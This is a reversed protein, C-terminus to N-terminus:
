SATRASAVLQRVRDLAEEGSILAVEGAEVQVIRRRVEAIQAQQIEPAVIDTLTGLLCDAIDAREPLSLEELQALIRAAAQTMSSTYRAGDKVALTSM